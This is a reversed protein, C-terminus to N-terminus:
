LSVHETNATPGRLGGPVVGSSREQSVKCASLSTTRAPTCSGAHEECGKVLEGPAGLQEERCLGSCSWPLWVWCGSRAAPTLRLARPEFSSAASSSHARSNALLLPKLSLLMAMYAHQGSQPTAGVARRSGGGAGTPSAVHKQEAEHEEDRAKAEDTPRPPRWHKEHTM